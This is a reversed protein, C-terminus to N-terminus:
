VGREDMGTWSTFGGQKMDSLEVDKKMSASDPFVLQWLQTKLGDLHAITFALQGSKPSHGSIGGALFPAQRDGNVYHEVWVDM